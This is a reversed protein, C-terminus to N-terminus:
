RIVQVLGGKGLKIISSPTAKTRDDRRYQVIYDVGEKIEESIESFNAPSPEGSINASTSVLPKRFAECLRRSFDERTVRIGISGDEALLNKALNKGQSYIVTLPKDAVEILDWAIDPMEEVYRDLKAADDVLVLMAKNDIRKKLEYVRQVAEENTADCGIGWITDTPYLIIGGGRMVECAMKLDNIM